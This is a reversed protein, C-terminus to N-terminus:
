IKPVFSAYECVMLQKMVVTTRVTSREVNLCFCHAHGQFQITGITSKQAHYDKTLGSHYNLKQKLIVAM